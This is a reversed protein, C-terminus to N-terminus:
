MEYFVKALRVLKLKEVLVYYIVMGVSPSSLNLKRNVEGLIYKRHMYSISTELFESTKGNM